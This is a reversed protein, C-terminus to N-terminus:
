IMGGHMCVAGRFDPALLEAYADELEASERLASLELAEEPTISGLADKLALLSEQERASLGHELPVGIQPM